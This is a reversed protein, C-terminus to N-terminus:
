IRCILIDERRNGMPLEENQPLLYTEFGFGRYRQLIGMIVGDDMQAPELLLHKVEPQTDTKTFEQHFKIGTKTSFFRKRKSINPIDGLLLKGGPKLM